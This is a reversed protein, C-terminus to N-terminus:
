HAGIELFTLGVMIAIGIIIALVHLISDWLKCHRHLEPVLNSAAIYIFTGAAFPIIFTEFGEIRGALVLGIVGGVIATAASLLNFFVAKGKSMGSYLLVGFDAIEQPVEHFIISITAAIGLPISVLYSGAIIMGDLFNHVGDGILNLPALHYGHSHAKKDVEHECKNEHHWHIFRELIFFVIFGFLINIAVSLTYGNAVAEPIFHIFVSGLMTGVSLSLLVVLFKKPIKKKFFFPIIALVAILSVIIVSGFIYILHNM